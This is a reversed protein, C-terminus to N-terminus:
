RLTRRTQRGVTTHFPHSGAVAVFDQDLERTMERADVRCLICPNVYRTIRFECASNEGRQMENAHEQPQCTNLLEDFAVQTDERCDVYQYRRLSDPLKCGALRLPIFRRGANAPDRFLVTSRQLGVLGIGTGGVVLLAGSHAVGGARAPIPGVEKVDRPHREQAPGGFSYLQGPLWRPLGTHDCRWM